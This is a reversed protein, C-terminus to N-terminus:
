VPALARAAREVHDCLFCDGLSNARQNLSCPRKLDHQKTGVRAPISPLVRVNVKEHDLVRDLVLSAFHHAQAATQTRKPDRDIHEHERRLLNRIPSLERARDDRGRQPLPSDHIASASSRARTNRARAPRSRLTNRLSTRSRTISSALTPKTACYATSFDSLATSVVCPIANRRVWSRPASRSRSASAPL